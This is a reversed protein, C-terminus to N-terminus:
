ACWFYNEYLHEATFLYSSSSFCFSWSSLCAPEARAWVCKIQMGATTM